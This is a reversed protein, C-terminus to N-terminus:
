HEDLGCFIPHAILVDSFPFTFLSGLHSGLISSLSAPQNLESTQRKRPLGSNSILVLVGLDIGEECICFCTLHQAPVNSKDLFPPPSHPCHCLILLLILLKLLM